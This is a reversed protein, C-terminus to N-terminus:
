PQVETEPVYWFYGVGWKTRIFYPDKPDDEIKDRLYSVYLQLSAKGGDPDLLYGTGWVRRWRLMESAMPTNNAPM